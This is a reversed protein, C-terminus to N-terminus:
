RRRGSPEKEEKKKNIIIKELQGYNIIMCSSQRPLLIESAKLRNIGGATTMTRNRFHSKSFIPGIVRAMFRLSTGDNEDVFKRKPTM